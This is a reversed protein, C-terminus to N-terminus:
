AKGSVINASKYMIFDNVIDNMQLFNEGIQKQILRVVEITIKQKNTELQEIDNTLQNNIAKLHNYFKDAQFESLGQLYNPTENEM